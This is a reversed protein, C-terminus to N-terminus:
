CITANLGTMQVSAINNPNFRYEIDNRFVRLYTSAGAPVVAELSFLM